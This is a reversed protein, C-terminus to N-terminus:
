MGFESWCVHGDACQLGVRGVVLEAWPDVKRERRLVRKAIEFGEGPIPADTRGPSYEIGMAACVRRKYRSCRELMSVLRGHQAGEARKYYFQVPWECERVTSSWMTARENLMPDLVQGSSLVVWADLHMRAGRVAPREIETGRRLARGHVARQRCSFERALVCRSRAVM